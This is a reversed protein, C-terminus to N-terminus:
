PTFALRVSQKKELKAGGAQGGRVVLLEVRGTASPNPRAAIAFDLALPQGKKVTIKAVSTGGVADPAPSLLQVTWGTGEAQSVSVSCDFEAVNADIAKKSLALTTSARVVGSGPGASLVGNNVLAPVYSPSPLELQDDEPDVKGVTYGKEPSEDSLAGSTSRLLIRFDKAFPLQNVRVFVRASRNMALPLEANSLPQKAEDLLTVLHAYKAADLADGSDALLVQLKFKADRTAKSSLVYAFLADKGAEPPNPTVSEALFDVGGSLPVEAPKVTVMRFDSSATNFVTLPLRMGGEPLAGLDPVDVILRDDRSGRKFSQVTRSGFSVYCGGISFEFNRGEIAVESGVVMEDPPRVSTIVVATSGSASGASLQAVRLQLDRIDGLMQNILSSTILDGPRTSEARRALLVSWLAQQEDKSLKDGLEDIIDGLSVVMDGPMVTRLANKLPSATAM